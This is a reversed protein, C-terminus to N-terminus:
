STVASGVQLDRVQKRRRMAYDNTQKLEERLDDTLVAQKEKLRAVHPCQSEKCDTVEVNDTQIQAFLLGPFLLMQKLFKAVSVICM